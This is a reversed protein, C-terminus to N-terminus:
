FISNQSIGQILKLIEKHSSIIPISKPIRPDRRKKDPCFYIFKVKAELSTRYDNLADGVYCVQKNSLGMKEITLDLAEPSPKEKQYMERWVINMERLGKFPKLVKKVFDKRASTCIWVSYRRKLLKEITETAGPFPVARKLNKNVYEAKAKQFKNLLHKKNRPLMMLAAERNSIGRQDVLMRASVPVNFTKGAFLWADEHLKQTSVLTGDLDYIVGGTAKAPFLKDWCEKCLHVEVLSGKDTLWIHYAKYMDKQCEDCAFMKYVPRAKINWKRSLKILKQKKDVPFRFRSKDVRVAKNIRINNSKLKEQCAHCFHVPTKYGGRALWYHWAKRMHKQCNACRFGRYEPKPKLDWTKVIKLLIEQNM